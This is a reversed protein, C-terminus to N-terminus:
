PVAACWASTDGSEFGDMFSVGSEVSGRDCHQVGDGDGDVPRPAGRQDTAPCLGDDGSDVAPSGAIPRHSMTPGGHSALPSLMVDPVELDDPALLNCTSDDALNFNESTITAPAQRVCNGITTGGQELNGAVISNRLTLEVAASGQQRQVSIGGGLVEATNDCITSSEVTAATDSSWGILQIGGGRGSYDATTAAGFSRNGSITSNSVSASGDLVLIGAGSGGVAQTTGSTNRSITCRDIVATDSYVMMGGGAIDAHNASITSERLLARAEATIGGGVAAARNGAVASGHIELVAHRGPDRVCQVGGGEGYAVNNTVKTGQLILISDAHVASSCIGGGHNGVNETVVCDILTMTGSRNHVGGGCQSTSQTVTTRVLQTTGSSILAGGLFGFGPNGRSLTLDFLHLVGTWGVAFIRFEPAGMARRITSGHGAVLIESTVVPLGNPGEWSNHVRDLLYTSATALEIVDAGSGAPCDSNTAADSNANEIAEILSCRGDQVLAPDTTNVRITAGWGAVTTQLIVALLWWRRM